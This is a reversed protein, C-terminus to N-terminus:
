YRRRLLMLLGAGILVLPWFLNWNIIDFVRYLGMAGSLAVLGIVILVGGAIERGRRTDLNTAAVEPEPEGEPRTPVVIALIIYGLLSVGGVGPILAVSVFGLRVLTPDVHIYQGLGGAVGAVMKQARSRYLRKASTHQNDM